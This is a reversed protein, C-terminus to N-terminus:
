LWTTLHSSSPHLRDPNCVPTDVVGMHLVVPPGLLLADADSTIAGGDFLRFSRVDKLLHSRM